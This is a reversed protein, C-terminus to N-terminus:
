RLWAAAPLIVTMDQVWRIVSTVSPPRLRTADVPRPDISLQARGKRRVVALQARQEAAAVIGPKQPDQLRATIRRYLPQQLGPTPVPVVRLVRMEVRRVRSILTRVLRTQEVPTVILGLALVVPERVRRDIRRRPRHNSAPAADVRPV